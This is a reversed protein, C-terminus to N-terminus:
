MGVSGLLGSLYGWMLILKLVKNTIRTLRPLQLVWLKAKAKQVMSKRSILIFTSPTYFILHINELSLHFDM